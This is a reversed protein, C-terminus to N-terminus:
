LTGFPDSSRSATELLQTLAPVCDAPARTALTRPPILGLARLKSISVAQRIDAVSVDWYVALRHAHEETSRQPYYGLGDGVNRGIGVLGHRPIYALIMHGIYKELKTKGRGNRENGYGASIYNQSREETWRHQLVTDAYKRGKVIHWFAGM